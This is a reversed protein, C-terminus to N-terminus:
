EDCNRCIDTASRNKLISNRFAVAKASFWCDKFTQDFLNGYVYQKNKDYCCPLMNGSTDVVCGSWLRFCRNHLKRKLIYRGDPQKKYRSFREDSPMLPNGNEYDYFQATKLVFKVGLEKALRRMKEWEHENSKLALCQWEIEIHCHQTKKAETLYELALLAKKLSGGTRYQEYTKQTFGDISVVIKSLGARVLGFAKEQTLTQANTSLMTYIGRDHALKILTALNPNLLPEGQFHFIVTQLTNGTEQLIKEFLETKFLEQKKRVKATGVPCEPCRLM